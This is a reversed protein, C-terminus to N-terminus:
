TSSPATKVIEWLTWSEAIIQIMLNVTSHFSCSLFIGIFRQPTIREGADKDLDVFTFRTKTWMSLVITTHELYFAGSTSVM